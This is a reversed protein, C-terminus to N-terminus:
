NIQKKLSKTSFAAMALTNIMELYILLDNIQINLVIEVVVVLPLLFKGFYVNAPKIRTKENGAASFALSPAISDLLYYRAVSFVSHYCEELLSLPTEDTVLLRLKSESKGVNSMSLIFQLYKMYYKIEYYYAIKKGNLVPSSEVKNKLIRIADKSRHKLILYHALALHYAVLSEPKASINKNLKNLNEIDQYTVKVPVNAPKQPEDGSKFGRFKEDFIFSLFEDFMKANLYAKMLHILTSTHISEYDSSIPTNKLDYDLLELKINFVKVRSTLIGFLGYLQALLDASEYFQKKTSKDEKVFDEKVAMSSVLYELNKM